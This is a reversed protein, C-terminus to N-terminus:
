LSRGLCIFTEARPLPACEGALGRTRPKSSLRPGQLSERPAGAEAGSRTGLEGCGGRRAGAARRAGTREASARRPSWSPSAGRPGRAAAAAWGPNGDEVLLEQYWQLEMTYGLLLRLYSCLKLESPLCDVHPEPTWWWTHSQCSHSNNVHVICKGPPCSHFNNCTHLPNCQLGIHVSRELPGGVGSCLIHPM